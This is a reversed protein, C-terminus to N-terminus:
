LDSSSNLSSAQFEKVERCSWSAAEITKRVAGIIEECAKLSQSAGINQDVGQKTYIAKCHQDSLMEIRLTRVQKEKKCIILSDGSEAFSTLSFFLVACTSVQLAKINKFTFFQGHDL